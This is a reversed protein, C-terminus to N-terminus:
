SPLLWTADCGASPRARRLGVGPRETRRPTGTSSRRPRSDCPSAASAMEARPSATAPDTDKVVLAWGM